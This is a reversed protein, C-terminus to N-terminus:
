RLHTCPEEGCGARAGDQAHGPGGGSDDSRPVWRAMEVQMDDGSLGVALVGAMSVVAVKAVAVRVAAAQM